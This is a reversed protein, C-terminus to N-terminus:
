LMSYMYERQAATIASLRGRTTAIGSNLSMLMRTTVSACLQIELTFMMNLNKDASLTGVIHFLEMNLNKDASGVVM